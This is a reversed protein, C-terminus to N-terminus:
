HGALIKAAEDLMKRAEEKKGVKWLMAAYDNLTLVMETGVVNNNYPDNLRYIRLAEDYWKAAEPYNGQLNEMHAVNQVNLGTEFANKGYVVQDVKVAQKYYKEADAFRRDYECVMGLQTLASAVEKSNRGHNAESLKLLELFIKEAKKYDGATSAELAEKQLQGESKKPKTETKDNASFAERRATPDSILQAISEPAVASRAPIETFGEFEPSKM